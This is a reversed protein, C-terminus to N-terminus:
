EGAEGRHIVVTRKEKNNLTAVVSPFGQRCEAKKAELWATIEEADWATSNTGLKFPKPFTPDEKSKRWITAHSLGTVDKVKNIRLAQTYRM